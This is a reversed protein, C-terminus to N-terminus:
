RTSAARPPAETNRSSWEAASACMVGPPRGPRQRVELTRLPRPNRDAIYCAGSMACPREFAPTKQRPRGTASSLSLLSAAAFCANCADRLLTCDPRPHAMHRHGEGTSGPNGVLLRLLASPHHTVQKAPAPGAASEYRCEHRRSPPLVSSYSVGIGKRSKRRLRKQEVARM